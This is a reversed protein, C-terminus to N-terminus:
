RKEPDLTFAVADTKGAFVERATIQWKGNPADSPLLIMVKDVTVTRAYEQLDKGTPNKLTIRVPYRVDAAEKPLDIRFRLELAGGNGTKM